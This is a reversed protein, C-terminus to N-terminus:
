LEDLIDHHSGIEDVTHAYEQWGERLKGQLSPHELDLHGHEDHIHQVHRHLHHHEDHDLYEKKHLAAHLVECDVCHGHKWKTPGVSHGDPYTLTGIGHPQANAWHGKYRRGDVWHIEGDGQNIMWSHVRYWNGTAIHGDPWIM